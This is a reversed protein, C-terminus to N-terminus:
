IKFLQLFMMSIGEIQLIATNLDEIGRIMADIADNFSTKGVLLVGSVKPSQKSAILGLVALVIDVRSAETVVFDGNKVEKLFQECSGAVIKASSIIKKLAARKGYIQKAHLFSEVESVSIQELLEVKPLVFIDKQQLQTRLDKLNEPEVMNVFTAFLECGHKQIENTELKIENLIEKASKKYANLVPVFPSAFNKAIEYNINYEVAKSLFDLNVGVILVFEFKSKLKEYKAILQEFASQQSNAFLQLFEDAEFGISQKYTQNLGYREIMMLCDSDVGQVIPKFFAVKQYNQKLLEMLGLSISFSGSHPEVSAIYLSQTQL